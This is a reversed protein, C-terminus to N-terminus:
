RRLHSKWAHKALKANKGKSTYNKKTYSCANVIRTYLKANGTHTLSMMSFYRWNRKKIQLLEGGLMGLLTMQHLLHVGLVVIECSSLAEEPYAIGFLSWWCTFCDSM